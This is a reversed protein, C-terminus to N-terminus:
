CAVRRVVHFLADSVRHFRRLKEAIQSNLQLERSLFSYSMFKMDCRQKDFPFNGVNMLCFTSAVGCVLLNVDGNSQVYAHQAGSTVDATM